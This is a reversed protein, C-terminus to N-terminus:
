APSTENILLVNNAVYSSFVGEGSTDNDPSVKIVFLFEKSGFKKYLKKWNEALYRASAATGSGGLGACIFYFHNEITSNRIKLIIAYDNENTKLFAKREGDNSSVVFFVNQMTSFDDPISYDIFKNNRDKLAFRTMQNSMPGGLSIFTNDLNRYADDDKLLDILKNQHKSLAQYIYAIARFESLGAYEKPGRVQIIKKDYFRKECRPKPPADADILSFHGHVVKLNTGFFDDGFFKRLKHKEISRPIKSSIAGFILLVIAAIVETSISM